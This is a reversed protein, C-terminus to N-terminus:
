TKQKKDLEKDLRLRRMLQNKRQTVSVGDIDKAESSKIGPAYMNPFVFGGALLADLLSIDPNRRRADIAKHMREDGSRGPHKRIKGREKVKAAHKSPSRRPLSMPKSDSSVSASASSKKSSHISTNSPQDTHHKSDSPASASASTSSKKSSNLKSTDSEQDTMMSVDSIGEFLGFRATQNTSSSSRPPLSSPKSDSALSVDSINGDQNTSRNVESLLNDQAAEIALRAKFLDELSVDLSGGMCTPVATPPLSCAALSELVRNNPGIHMTLNQRERLSM